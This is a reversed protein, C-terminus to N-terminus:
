LIPLRPVAAPAGPVMGDDVNPAGAGTLPRNPEGAGAGVPNPPPKPEDNAGDGPPNNPELVAGAGDNNPPADAGAEPLLKNPAGAGDVDLPNPVNPVVGAEAGVPPNLNQAGARVRPLKNPEVVVVIPTEPVGAAGVPLVGVEDMGNPLVGLLSHKVDVLPPEIPGHVNLAEDDKAGFGREVLTARHLEVVVVDVALQELVWSLTL